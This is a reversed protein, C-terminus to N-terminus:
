RSRAAPSPRRRPPSRRRDAHSNDVRRAALVAATAAHGLTDAARARLDYDGDAVAAPPGRARAPPELPPLDRDVHQRRVAPVRRDRQRGGPRRRRGLATVTLNVSGKLSTGPDALSVAPATNDVRRRRASRPASTARRRRPRRRARRRARRRREHGLRLHVPAAPRRARTPGRAPAPPPSRSASASSGATRADRDRVARRQGAAAHRPRRAGRRRHQLGRGDRVHERRQDVVRRLERQSPQVRSRSSRRARGPALLRRTM